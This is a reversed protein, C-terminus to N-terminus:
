LKASCSAKNYSVFSYLQFSLFGILYFGTFFDTFLTQKVFSHLSDKLEGQIHIIFSSIERRKKSDFIIM